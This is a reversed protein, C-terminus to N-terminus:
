ARRGGLWTGVVTGAADLLLKRVTPDLDVFDDSTARRLSERDALADPYRRRANALGARVKTEASLWDTM